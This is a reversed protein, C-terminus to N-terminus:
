LGDVVYDGTNLNIWEGDDDKRVEELEELRELAITALREFHQAKASYLDEKSKFMSMTFEPM